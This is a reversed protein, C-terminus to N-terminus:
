ARTTSRSCAPTTRRPARAATAAHMGFRVMGTGAVAAGEFKLGRM